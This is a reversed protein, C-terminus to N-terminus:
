TNGFGKIYQRLGTIGMKEGEEVIGDTDLYRLEGDACLTLIRGEEDHSPLGGSNINGYDYEPLIESEADWHNRYGERPAAPDYVGMSHFRRNPNEIWRGPIFTVVFNPMVVNVGAKDELKKLRADLARM